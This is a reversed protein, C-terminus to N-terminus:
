CIYLINNSETTVVCEIECGAGTVFFFCLDDNVLSLSPLTLDNKLEIGLLNLFNTKLYQFDYRCGPKFTYVSLQSPKQNIVFHKEADLFQGYVLDMEPLLKVKAKM